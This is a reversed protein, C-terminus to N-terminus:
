DAAGRDLGALFEERSQRFAALIQTLSVMSGTGAAARQEGAACLTALQAFGLNLAAGKLAHLEEELADPSARVLAGAMAETESLFLEVVEAFEEAGIEDRLEWVRPWDIRETREASM